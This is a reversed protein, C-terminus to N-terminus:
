LPRPGGGAAAASVRALSLPHAPTFLAASSSRPPRAAAPPRAPPRAPMFNVRRGGGGGGGGRAGRPPRVGAPRRRRAERREGGAGVRPAVDRARAARADRLGRPAPAPRRAPARVDHDRRRRRAGVLAAMYALTGAAVCAAPRWGRQVCRVIARQACVAAIRIVGGWLEVSFLVWRLGWAPLDDPVRYGWMALMGPDCAQAILLGLSLLPLYSVLLVVYPLQTSEGHWGVVLTALRGRVFTEFRARGDTAGPESAWTLDILRHVTTVDDASNAGADALRFTRLQNVMQLHSTAEMYIISSGILVMPSYVVGVNVVYGWVPGFVQSMFPLTCFALYQFPPGGIALLLTMGLTFPAGWETVFDIRSAADYHIRNFTALEYTCWIRQLYTPSWLVVMRRSFRLFLDFSKIAHEKLRLDTQHICM